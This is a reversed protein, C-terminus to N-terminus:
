PPHGRRRAIADDATLEGIAVNDLTASRPPDAAGWRMPPKKRQRLLAAPAATPAAPDPCRTLSSTRDPLRREVFRAFGGIVPMLVLVVVNYATQYAALLTVGDIASEARVLLRIVAPFSVLAILVAIVKFLIYAVALKKDTTSAGIMPCFMPVAVLEAIAAIPACGQDV